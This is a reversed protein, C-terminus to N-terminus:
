DAGGGDIGWDCCAEGVGDLTAAVEKGEPGVRWGDEGEPGAVLCGPRAGGLSLAMSKSEASSAVLREDSKLGKDFGGDEAGVGLGERGVGGGLPVPLPRKDLLSRKPPGVELEPESRFPMSMSKRIGSLGAPPLVMLIAWSIALFYPWLAMLGLAVAWRSRSSWTAAAAFLISPAAVSSM